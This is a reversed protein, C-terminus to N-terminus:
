PLMATHTNFRGAELVNQDKKWLGMVVVAPQESPSEVRFDEIRVESLGPKGCREHLVRLRSRAFSDNAAQMSPGAATLGFQDPARVPSYVIYQDVNAPLRRSKLPLLCEPEVVVLEAMKINGGAKEVTELGYRSYRIDAVANVAGM